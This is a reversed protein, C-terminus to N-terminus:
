TGGHAEKVKQGGLVIKFLRNDKMCVIDRWWKVRRNRVIGQLTTLGLEGQVVVNAASNCRPLGLMARMAERMEVELCEWENKKIVTSWVISGYEMICVVKAYLVKLMMPVPVISYIKGMEKIEAIAGM